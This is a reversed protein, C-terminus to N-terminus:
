FRYGNESWSFAQSPQASLQLIIGQVDHSELLLTGIKPSNEVKGGQSVCAAHLPFILTPNMIGNPPVPAHWQSGSDM